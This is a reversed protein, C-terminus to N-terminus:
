TQSQVRNFYSATLRAPHWTNERTVNDAPFLRCQVRRAGRQNSATVRRISGFTSHDLGATAGVSDDDHM